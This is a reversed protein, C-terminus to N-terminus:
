CLKDKCRRVWLGCCLDFWILSDVCNLPRQHRVASTAAPAYEMGAGGAACFHHAVVVALVLMTAAVALCVGVAEVLKQQHM